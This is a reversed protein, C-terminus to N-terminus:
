NFNYFSIRRFNSVIIINSLCHTETFIVFYFTSFQVFGIFHHNQQLLVRKKRQPQTQCCKPRSRNGAVLSAHCCCLSRNRHPTFYQCNFCYKKTNNQENLRLLETFVCFYNFHFSFRPWYLLFKPDTQVPLSFLQVLFFWVMEISTITKAVKNLLLNNSDCSHKM